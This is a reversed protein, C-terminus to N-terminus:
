FKRSDEMKICINNLIGFVATFYELLKNYQM